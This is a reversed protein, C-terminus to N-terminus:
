SQTGLADRPGPFTSKSALTQELWPIKIKMTAHLRRVCAAVDALEEPCFGAHAAAAAWAAPEFAKVGPAFWGVAAVVGRVLASRHVIARAFRRGQLVSNLARRQAPGPAGGATFVLLGLSTVDKTRIQKLYDDWGGEPPPNQGHLMIIRQSDFFEFRFDMVSAPVRATTRRVQLDRVTVTRERGFSSSRNRARDRFPTESSPPQRTMEHM